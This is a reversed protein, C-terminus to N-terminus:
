VTKPNNEPSIKSGRKRIDFYKNTSKKLLEFDIDGAVGIVINDNHYHMDMYNLFENRNFNKINEVPGLISDGFAQDKFCTKYYEESIKDQPSDEYMGIEQIIVGRELDIEEQLYLPDVVIDALIDFAEEFYEKPITCHYATQEKSTYANFHGGLEDLEIAIEHKDRKNTGKFAMHEVFHSIGREDKSEYCGGVNVRIKIAVSEFGKMSDCAALVGNDLKEFQISM